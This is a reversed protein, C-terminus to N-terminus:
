APLRVSPSYSGGREGEFDFEYLQIKGLAGRHQGLFFALANPAAIFLHTTGGGPPRHTRIVEALADALAVAHDADAVVRPGVGGEPRADVVHGVSPAGALYANVAAMVDRTVSVAIAVDAANASLPQKTASWSSSAVTAGGATAGPKWLATCVGKQVPFVQAGSKRDLEYGAVFALSSHCELLLHHEEARFSPNTLFACVDALVAGQWAGTDRVHRDEFNSAVCVFSSCEDEIREAFRMFSRIGVVPPGAAPAFVLLEERECMARFSAPDFANTGNLIFQQTLSDYVNQTQGSAIERLGVSAFRDNLWERLARRGLFDVGFRLRRAFDEFAVETLGLHERWEKRIKGLDSRPGDSFFRDPLAGGESERLLPGLKDEATWRWNSVLNLRHWGDADGIKVRADHFRQLLSRTAGIFAPDCFSAAAYEASRDVHYKVQFYDAACARGGANVGPSMYHVSVDDVGAAQDHEIEVRAVKSSPRLLAAAQLWFFMGQFVDGEIRAAVQKLAV